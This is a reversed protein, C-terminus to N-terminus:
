KHLRIPPGPWWPARPFAAPESHPRFRSRQSAPRRRRCPLPIRWSRRAAEQSTLALTLQLYSHHDGLKALAFRIAPYTDVPTQAGGAQSLTERRLQPWDIKDRHLFHEQMVKIAADIYATAEPSAVDDRPAAALSFCLAPLLYLFRLPM